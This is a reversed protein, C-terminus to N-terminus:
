RVGVAELRCGSVPCDVRGLLLGKELGDSLKHAGLRLQNILGDQHHAKGTWLGHQTTRRNAAQVPVSLRRPQASMAPPLPLSASPDGSSCPCSIRLRAAHQRVIASIWGGQSRMLAGCVLLAGFSRWANSLMRRGHLIRLRFREVSQWLGVLTLAKRKSGNGGIWRSHVM